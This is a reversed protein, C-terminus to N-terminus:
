GWEIETFGSKLLKNNIASFPKSGFFGRYASLPSPHPSLVLRDDSFMLSFEQAYNGWLVGIAGNKAIERVISSTIEQWGLNKHAHSIGNETTLVHNLLIVRQNAWDSLDGNTRLPSGLDSSLEQFINRLSAPLKSTESNVSFALGNPVGKTPYPDQGLILVHASSIESPLARFINSIAPQFNGFVMLQKEIYNIHERQQVLLEQWLEPLTAFLTNM